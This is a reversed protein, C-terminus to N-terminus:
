YLETSFASLPFDVGSNFEKLMEVWDIPMGEAAAKWKPIHGETSIGQDEFIVEKMHYSPGYGLEILAAKLSETGTRGPGLGIVKLSSATEIPWSACYLFLLRLLHNLSPM